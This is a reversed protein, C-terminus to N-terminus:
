EATTEAVEDGADRGLYHVIFRTLNEPKHFTKVEKGADFLDLWFSIGKASGMYTWFEDVGDNLAFQSVIDRQIMHTFGGHGDRKWPDFSYDFFPGTGVAVRFSKNDNLISLNYHTLDVKGSSPVYGRRLTTFKNDGRSKLRRIIVHGLDSESIKGERLLRNGEAKGRKEMWLATDFFLEQFYHKLILNNGLVNYVSVINERLPGRLQAARRHMDGKAASPRIANTKEFPIQGPEAIAEFELPLGDGINNLTKLLKPYKIFLPHNKFSENSSSFFEKMLENCDSVSALKRSTSCGCLVIIFYFYVIRKFFKM